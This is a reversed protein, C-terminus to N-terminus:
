KSRDRVGVDEIRDFLEEVSEVNRFDVNSVVDEFVYESDFYRDIVVVRTMVKTGARSFTCNPLALDAVLYAGKLKEDYFWREFRKDAMGGAPFLAVVRGGDRLHEFAKALHEVAIKGGSGFPPNMVIVDYKNVVHHDEFKGVKVDGVAVSLEAALDVSPEILKNNCHKPFFRAIAGHGASPELMEDNPRANGWEVMKLGLPEPTAFYDTGSRNNRGSKVAQRSYYFTKAQDYPSAIEQRADIERGGEGTMSFPSKWSSPVANLYGESFSTELNRAAEGMALNEATKVRSNIKHGFAFQEFSTHLVLYELIANTKVGLRYIRGETQIADTPKIPLALNILTRQHTGSLDHLSIGEKGADMQVVLVQVKSDDDNFDRINQNRKKKPVDGNFFRVKEGFESLFTEIPTNLNLELNKYEPHRKHFREIDEYEKSERAKFHFPHTLNDSKYTHFVVVKRGQALHLKAREVAYGAKISELLLNQKIWTFNKHVVTPLSLYKEDTFGSAIKIGEDIKKGIEDDVLIFDRSYDQDVELLRSSLVGETKLKENFNREMLGVDVGSEPITLKNYRIRYGFNKVYFYRDIKYMEQIDFKHANLPNFLIGHAYELSTHYAFPTASLFVVKTVDYLAKAKEFRFDKQAKENDFMKPQDLYVGDKMNKRVVTDTIYPTKVINCFQWETSTCNGSQNSNLKHSEDCIVLDFDRKLLEENQRFNAYTTIVIGDGGDKVSKLQTIELNADKADVIWDKAKVDTPVVILTNQKGRLEFRKIIGLGVYTKGTGTGNTFMIGKKNQECLIQEAKLVDEVQAPTLCPVNQHISELSYENVATPEVFVGPLANNRTKDVENSTEVELTKTEIEIIENQNDTKDDIVIEDTFEEKLKDWEYQFTQAEKATEFTHTYGDVEIVIETKIVPVIKKPQEVPQEETWEPIVKDLVKLLLEIYDIADQNYQFKYREKVPNIVRKKLKWCLNAIDGRHGRLTERGKTRYYSKMVIKVTETDAYSERMNLERGITTALLVDAVTSTLADIKTKFMMKSNYSDTLAWEKGLKKVRNETPTMVLVDLEQRLEPTVVPKPKAEQPTISSLYEILTVHKELLNELFLGTEENQDMGQQIKELRDIAAVQMRVLRKLLELNNPPILKYRSILEDTDITPTVKVKKAQLIEEVDVQIDRGNVVQGSFMDVQSPSDFRATRVKRKKKQIVPKNSEFLPLTIQDLQYQEDQCPKRRRPTPPILTELQFPKPIDLSQNRM